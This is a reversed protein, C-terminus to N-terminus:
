GFEKLDLTVVENFSTTKPLTVRPRIVSKAFKQCVNCDNIVRNIVDVLDSSIGRDNKYASVLEEKKYNNVKHVKRMAKYSCLDGKKMWSCFIQLIKIGGAWPYCRIQHKILRSWNTCLLPVRALPSM